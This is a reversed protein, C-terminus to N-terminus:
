ILRSYLYAINGEIRNLDEETIAKPNKDWDTKPTQWM